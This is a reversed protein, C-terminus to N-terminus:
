NNSYTYAGAGAGAGTGAGVGAVAGVPPAARPLSEPVAEPPFIRCFSSTLASTSLISLTLLDFKDLKNNERSRIGREKGQYKEKQSKSICNFFSSIYCEIIYQFNAQDIVSIL